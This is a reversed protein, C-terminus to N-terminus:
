EIHWPDRHTAVKLLCTGWRRTSTLKISEFINFSSGKHTMTASNCKQAAQTQSTRHSSRSADGIRTTTVLGAGELVTHMRKEALPRYRAAPHKPDASIYSVVVPSFIHTAEEAERGYNSGEGKERIEV